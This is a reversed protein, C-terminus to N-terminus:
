EIDSKDKDSDKKKGIGGSTNNIGKHRPLLCFASWKANKHLIDDMIPPTIPYKIPFDKHHDIGPISYEAM